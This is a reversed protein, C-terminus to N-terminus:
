STRLHTQIMFGFFLTNSCKVVYLTLLLTVNEQLYQLLTYKNLFTVFNAQWKPLHGLVGHTTCHKKLSRSFFLDLLPELPDCPEEEGDCLWYRSGISSEVIASIDLVEIVLM